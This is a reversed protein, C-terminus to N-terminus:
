ERPKPGADRHEACCYPRGAADRLAESAPLHLGCRACDIMAEPPALARQRRAAQAAPGGQPRSPFLRRRVWWWAAIVLGLWILLRLM